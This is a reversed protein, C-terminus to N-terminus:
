TFTMGTKTCKMSRFVRARCIRTHTHCDILGPMLTAGPFDLVTGEIDGCQSLESQRAVWEIGGGSVKVAMREQVVGSLGDALRGVKIITPESNRNM